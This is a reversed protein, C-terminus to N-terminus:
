FVEYRLTICNLFLKCWNLLSILCQLKGVSTFDSYCVMPNDPYLEQVAESHYIAEEYRELKLNIDVLFKLTDIHTADIEYAEYATKRALAANSCELHSVAVSLLEKM